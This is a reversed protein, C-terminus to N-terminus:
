TSWLTFTNVLEGDACGVDLVKLGPKQLDIPAFVIRNDLCAQVWLHQRHLREAESQIKGLLYQSNETEAM